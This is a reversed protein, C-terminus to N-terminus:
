PSATSRRIRAIHGADTVVYLMGDPGEAVDRVRQQWESLLQEEGSVVLGDLSIRNLRMRNLSGIFLDNDWGPYYGSGSFSMGSPAIGPDFYRLPQEMGEQRTRSSAPDGARTRGYSIIPWGYNSGPEIINIEDGGDPGHEHEFLQGSQPHFALGQPNRHGYSWIEPAADDRGVFPNDKPISGDPRIRLIKGCHNRLDQANAGVRRDGAAIFLHREKDMALRTGWRGAEASANNAVFIDRLDALEDGEV